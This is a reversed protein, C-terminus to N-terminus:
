YKQTTWHIIKGSFDRDFFQFFEKLGDFGDNVALRTMNVIDDAIDDDPDVEGNMFSIM